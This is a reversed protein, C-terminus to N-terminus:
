GNAAKLKVVKLVKVQLDHMKGPVVAIIKIRKGRCSRIKDTLKDSISFRVEQDANAGEEVDGVEADENEDGNEELDPDDADGNQASAEADGQDARNKGSKRGPKAAENALRQIGGRRKITAAIQDADVDETHLLRLAAAHKSARKRSERSKAEYVYALAHFWMDGRADTADDADQGAFKAVAKQKMFKDCAEDDQILDTVHKFVDQLIQRQRTRYGTRAAKYDDQARKLGAIADDETERRREATAKLSSAFATM